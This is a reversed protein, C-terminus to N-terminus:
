VRRNRVTSNIAGERPGAAILTGDLTIRGVAKCAARPATRREGNVTRGVTRAGMCRRVRQDQLPRSSALFPARRVIAIQGAARLESCSPHRAPRAHQRRHCVARRFDAHRRACCARLGFRSRCASVRERRLPRMTGPRGPPPPPATFASRRCRVHFSIRTRCQTPSRPPVRGPARGPGKGGRM